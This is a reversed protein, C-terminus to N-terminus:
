RPARGAVAGPVWTLHDLLVSSDYNEDGTNWIIFDITVQEGGKVPAQSTLWGTAGGSSTKSVGGNCSGYDGQISYALARSSARAAACVSTGSLTIREAAVSRM